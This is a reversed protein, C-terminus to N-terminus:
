KTFDYDLQYWVQSNSFSRLFTYGAVTIYDYDAYSYEKDLNYHYDKIMSEAIADREADNPFLPSLSEIFAKVIYDVEFNAHELRKRYEALSETRNGKINHLSSLEILLTYEGDDEYDTYPTNFFMYQFFPADQKYREMDSNHLEVGANEQVMYLDYELAYASMIKIIEMQYEAIEPFNYYDYTTATWDKNHSILDLNEDYNWNNADIENLKEVTLPKIEEFDSVYHQDVKEESPQDMVITEAESSVDSSGLGLKYSEYASFSDGVTQATVESGLNTLNFLNNDKIFDIIEDASYDKNEIIKETKAKNVLLEALEEQTFGQTFNAGTMVMLVMTIILMSLKRM